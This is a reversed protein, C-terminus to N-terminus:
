EGKKKLTLTIRYKYKKVVEMREETLPHIPITRTIVMCGEGISNELLKRMEENCRLASLTKVVDYLLSHTKKHHLIGPMMSQCIIRTGLYKVLVTALTHLGNVDLCHMVRM